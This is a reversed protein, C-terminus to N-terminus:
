VVIKRFRRRLNVFPQKWKRSSSLWMAAYHGVLDYYYNVDQIEDNIKEELRTAQREAGRPLSNHQQNLGILLLWHNFFKSVIEGAEEDYCTIDEEIYRKEEVTIRDLEWFGKQMYLSRLKNLEKALKQKEEEDHKFDDRIWRVM